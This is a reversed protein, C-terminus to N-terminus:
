QLAAKSGSGSRAMQLLASFRPDSRIGDLVPDVPLLDAWFCQAHVGRDLWSFARNLDGLRLYSEGVDYLDCGQPSQKAVLDIRARQYAKWGGHRYAQRLSALKVNPISASLDRLDARAAQDFHLTMEHCRAVWEEIYGFRAPEMEEARQLYRIAEEFHHALYLTSGLHRNMLFSRPDLQLARRMHSVAEEPRAMADLYISYQMEALSNNPSLAIGKKLDRGAATWDKEYSMEVFGLAAYAEGSEGDLEIARKAAALARSKDGFAANGGASRTTLAEALGAYAAAYSSDLAVTQQFYTVSKEVNRQNLFYLGRLYADYAVPDIRRSRVIERHPTLVAQTHSAIERVIREQLSLIDSMREDYSQAWLHRDDRVDILQATIRVRDGSRM